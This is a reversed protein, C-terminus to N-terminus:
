CVMSPAFSCAQDLGINLKKSGKLYGNFLVEKLSDLVNCLTFRNMSNCMNVDMFCLSHTLPHLLFFVTQSQM